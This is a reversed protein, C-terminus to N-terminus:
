FWSRNSFVLCDYSAYHVITSSDCKLHVTSLFLFQLKVLTMTLCIHLDRHVPLLPSKNPRSAAKLHYLKLIGKAIYIQNVKGRLPQIQLERQQECYADFEQPQRNHTCIIKLVYLIRLLVYTRIKIM